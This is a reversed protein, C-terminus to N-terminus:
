AAPRLVLTSPGRILISDVHQTPEVRELRELRPVLAELAARTELRALSAGLCFHAGFGFGLHGQPKRTIDFRDPDPFRREDRNASAILPSVFSGKPIRTGAIETDRLAERFLLRVPAEYRLTEEIIGPVLSPDNAALQIQDPNDLLANTANGILNTTTENGAVLLLTVFNVAEQVSLAAEGPQSKVITSVLDDTPDKKRERIVRSLYVSLGLFADIVEGRFPDNRGPGTAVNVIVDSWRKFDTRREVEVGLLEAIINLPLPVALDRVLDFSGGRDLVKMSEEVLEQARSDWRAIQRPTFGRNVINRMAGHPAGDASILDRGSQIKFPNMRARFVLGVFMRVVQWSLPPTSAVGGNMLFTRMASSSFTESDKLVRMVDEYRSICLVGTSESLHVPAEDRLIRYLPYPDEHSQCPDFDISM